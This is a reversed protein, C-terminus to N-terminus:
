LVIETDGVLKVAHSQVIPPFRLVRFCPPYCVFQMDGIAHGSFGFRSIKSDHLALCNSSDIFLIAAYFIILVAVRFSLM